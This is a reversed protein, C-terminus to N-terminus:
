ENKAFRWQYVLLIAALVTTASGLFFATSSTTSFAAILVGALPGTLGFALDQFASFVAITMGRSSAPVRKMAEVGLAPFGLAVGAGTLFAGLVAVLPSPGFWIAIQGACAVLMSTLAVRDGGIRDPLSGFLVRVLIVATGFAAFGLGAGQWAMENFYLTYFAAISGYSVMLLTLSLGYPWIIRLLPAIPIGEGRLTPTPPVRL